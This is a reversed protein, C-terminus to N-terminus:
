SIKVSDIIESSIQEATIDQAIAEYSLVLRHAIVSSAIAKIDEPIVFDREDLFAM